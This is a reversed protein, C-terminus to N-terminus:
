NNTVMKSHFFISDISFKNFCKNCIYKIICSQAERQSEYICYVNVLMSMYNNRVIIINMSVFFLPKTTNKLLPFSFLYNSTLMTENFVYKYNFSLNIRIINLVTIVM